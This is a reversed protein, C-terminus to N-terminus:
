EMQRKHEALLGLLAEEGERELWEDLNSYAYTALPSAVLGARWPNFLVYAVQQWYMAESRIVVDWAAGQWVKQKVACGLRRNILTATYSNVAHLIQSVTKSAGVELVAHYHEPMVCYAHLHFGYSTEYHRLQDVVMQALDPQAFSPKRQYTVSTVTYTAGPIIPRSPSGHTTEQHMLMAVLSVNVSIPLRITWHSGPRAM